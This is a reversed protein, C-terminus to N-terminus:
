YNPFNLKENVTPKTWLTITYSLMNLHFPVKSTAFATKRLWNIFMLILHRRLLPDIIFSMLILQRRLFPDIIFSMLILQRRLFPDIIFSMLILQRRLFPDIIFSM